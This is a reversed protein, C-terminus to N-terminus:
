LCEAPPFVKTLIAINLFYHYALSLGAAVRVLSDTDVDRKRPLKISGSTNSGHVTRRVTITNEPSLISGGFVTGGEEAVLLAIVAVTSEQV